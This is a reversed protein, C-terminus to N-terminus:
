GWPRTKSTLRRRKSVPDTTPGKETNFEGQASAFTGSLPPTVKSFKMEVSGTVSRPRADFYGPSAQAPDDTLFVQCRGNWPRRTARIRRVLKSLADESAPTKWRDAFYGVLEFSNNPGWARADVAELQPTGREYSPFVQMIVSRSKLSVDIHLVEGDSLPMKILADDVRPNTKLDIDKWALYINTILRLLFESDKGHLDCAIAPTSVATGSYAKPLLVLNDPHFSLELQCAAYSSSALAM